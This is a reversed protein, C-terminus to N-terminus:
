SYLLSSVCTYPYSFMEFMFQERTVPTGIELKPYGTGSIVQKVYITYPQANEIRNRSAHM